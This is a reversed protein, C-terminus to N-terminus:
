HVMMYKILSYFIIIDNFLMINYKKSMNTTYIDHNGPIIICHINLSNMKSM